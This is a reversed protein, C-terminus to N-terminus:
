EHSVGGVLQIEDDAWSLGIVGYRYFCHYIVEFPLCATHCCTLLDFHDVGINPTQHSCISIKQYIIAPLLWVKIRGVQQSSEKLFSRIFHKEGVLNIKRIPISERILSIERILSERVVHGVCKFCRIPSGGKLCSGKYYLLREHVWPRDYLYRCKCRM